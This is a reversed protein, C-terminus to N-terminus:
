AWFRNKWSIFRALFGPMCRAMMEDDSVCDRLGLFPSNESSFRTDYPSIDRGTRDKILRLFEDRTIRLDSAHLYHASVGSLVSLKELVKKRKEQPFFRGSFLAKVYEDACFAYAEEMKEKYGKESGQQYFLATAAYSPLLKLNETFDAVGDGECFREISVNSGLNITGDISIGRSVYHKDTCGGLLINVIATSRDTGYSEALLYKKSDYRNNEIIWHEIVSAIAAADNEFGYVGKVREPDLIQGYGTGVPDMVVIDCIDLLCNPNEELIYAGSSTMAEPTECSVRLPALMGMHLWLSSSGPGGNYAFVVPRGSM